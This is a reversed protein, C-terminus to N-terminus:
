AKSVYKREFEAVPLPRSFYYGQFCGCGMRSLFGVQEATEVGETIVQMGLGKAMSIVSQLIIQSREVNETERLFEMDIKLVDARIDKLFSLSSQGKGFDDIEVVFGAAQLRAIVPLSSEPNDIIASETIEVRLRRNDVGYRETLGTLTEFVNMYYFDKASMNVSITLDAGQWEALRAVAQEWINEDLRHILGAHELTEIFLAPPVVTGDPRVWRVLAEAGFPVGDARTLPQLYMQFQGTKLADDFTSIVEQEALSRQMIADDFHAVTAHLNDHITRLAMNARDCMVSIPISADTIEYVGFHIRLTYIGSSFSEGLSLAMEKLRSESYEAAPLLLAFLDGHLRGCLGGAKGAIDKLHEAVRILVENGKEVSFLSNVLRFEMIDGTIMLWTAGGQKELLNRAQEYFMEAKLVDTLSDHLALHHMARGGVNESARDNSTGQEGEDKRVSVLEVVANYVGGDALKLKVPNSHIHYVNDQFREVKDQHCGTRCATASSCNICRQDANWIGYCRDSMTIRDNDQFNLIRCEIPDVVRALDYMGSMSELLSKMEKVSYEATKM